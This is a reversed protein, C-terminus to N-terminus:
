TFLAIKGRTLRKLRQKLDGKFARWSYVVQRKAVTAVGRWTCAVDYYIFPEVRDIWRDKYPAGTLRFDFDLGRAACWRVLDEILLNGPSASYFAPDYTVVFFEMTAASVLCIGGAIPRGDFDLAFGCVGSGPRGVLLKYFDRVGPDLIWPGVLKHRDLWEAKTDFLWDIFAAADDATVERFTVEGKEALRRRSWRLSHRFTKTKSAFWADWSPFTSLHIVPSGMRGKHKPRREARLAAIMPSDEPLNYAELLDGPESALRYFEHVVVDPRPCDPAILPDSYEERGGCGLQRVIRLRDPRAVYLPWVAVMRGDQEAVIVRLEEAYARRTDWAARAYVPSQSVRAAPSRRVLADWAPRAAEFDELSALVRITPPEDM